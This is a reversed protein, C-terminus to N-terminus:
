RMSERATAFLLINGHATAEKWLLIWWLMEQTWLDGSASNCLWTVPLWVRNGWRLIPLILAKFHFVHLNICLYIELHRVLHSIHTHPLSCREGGRTVEQDASYKNWYQLYKCGKNLVCLSDNLVENLLWCVDGNCPVLLSMLFIQYSTLSFTYLVHLFLWSCHGEKSRRSLAPTIIHERGKSVCVKTTQFPFPSMPCFAVGPSVFWILSVLRPLSHVRM